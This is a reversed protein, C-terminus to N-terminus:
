VFCHNTSSFVLSNGLGSDIDEFIEQLNTYSNQFEYSPSAPLGYRLEGEDYCGSQYYEFNTGQRLGFHDSDNTGFSKDEFTEETSLNQLNCQGDVFKHGGNKLFLDENSSKMEGFDNQGEQQRVKCDGTSTEESPEIEFTGETIIKRLYEVEEPNNLLDSLDFQNENGLQGKDIEGFQVSSHHKDLGLDSNSTCTTEVAEIGFTDDIIFCDLGDPNQSNHDDSLGFQGCPCSRDQRFDSDDSSIATSPKNDVTEEAPLNQLYYNDKQANQLEISHSFPRGQLCEEDTSIAGPPKVDPTEEKIEKQYDCGNNSSSFDTVGIEEEMIVNKKDFLKDEGINKEMVNEKNLLKAETDHFYELKVTSIENGYAEPCNPKIEVAYEPKIKIGEVVTVDCCLNSTDMADSEADLKIKKTPPTTSTNIANTTTTTSISSMPDDSFEMPHACHQPFNLIAYSSGYLARAAEDYALAAEVATQFTGLWLRRSRSPQGIERVPVRIEAVWKGWTRQRVGRYCFDSNKPGGKGRMCGKKSGKVPVKRRLMGNGASDLQQNYNQWKLLTEEVTERGERM